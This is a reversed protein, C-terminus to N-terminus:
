TCFNSTREHVAIPLDQNSSVRVASPPESSTTPKAVDDAEASGPASELMPSCGFMTITLKSPLSKRIRQARTKDHWNEVGLDDIDSTERHMSVTYRLPYQKSAPSQLPM